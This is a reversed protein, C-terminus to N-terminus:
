SYDWFTRFMTM